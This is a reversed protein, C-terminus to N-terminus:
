FDDMGADPGYYHDPNAKIILDPDEFLDGECCDSVISVNTDYGRAGMYDYAGIGNDLPIANCHKGCDGCFPPENAMLDEKIQAIKNCINTIKNADKYLGIEDCINATKILEVIITKKDM